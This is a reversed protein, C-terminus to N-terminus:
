GHSLVNGRVEKVRGSVQVCRGGEWASPVGCVLGCAGGHTVSVRWAVMGDMWWRYWRGIGDSQGTVRYWRQGVIVGTMGAM